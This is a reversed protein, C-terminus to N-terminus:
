INVIFNNIVFYIINIDLKILFYKDYIITKKHSCNIVFFM